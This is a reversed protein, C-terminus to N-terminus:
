FEVRLGLSPLFPLGQAFVNKTYNYNYSIGEVNGQNYVNQIDLYSSISWHTFKWTKDVRLDLQQFVPLRSGYQPYSSLPLNSGSNEDYFGFTQATYLDGSVLRFRAGFEWGRGLRYSGLVSLIHTQDYQALHIPQGPGDQRESRSLTYAIWGFFHADPKYRVLTEIGYAHGRGGNLAGNIVLQDLQKYWGDLSVDLQRTIDQEAGVDYHYARNSVLGVQGFVLDTEQPQPPQYYLGAAAKLTTRPFAKTLDQRANVRPALDWQKTAKTYDLRVGPVIRTGKFPTLEGELYAGPEYVTGNTKSEVSPQSLGPGAPPQGPKPFPPFRVDVSYPAYLMDLGGNLTVGPAIKQGIEARGSIPIDSINAFNSGLNFDIYDQGVASVLRFETDKSIKDVYRGQIRWFGTHAGIGGALAPNSANASKILLDLKDDSGFFLLRFSRHSDFDKQVMAQYDYYVPAVTVGAGTASLVPKLWLDFYSRRGALAFNWGTNFIPGEVVARVDIFDVQAMGHIKDKKPNRIGVDVIGGMGRGYQASFNGPYFDLKEILETPVVSSLGGFHYVLPIATGDVFVQTDQPNSGRVVLLGGGFPARAVGPLNQISKIADGNTGPIREMERRELTRKVVERPPKEGKVTVEDIGDDSKVPAGLVVRKGSPQLRLTNGVEEGPEVAQDVTQGAYREATVVIRYTGFKLNPI